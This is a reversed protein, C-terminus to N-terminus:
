NICSLLLLPVFKLMKKGLSIRMQAFSRQIIKKVGDVSIGLMDAVDQNSKQEYFRLYLVRRVREPQRNLVAKLHTIRAEYENWDTETYHELDNLVEEMLPVQRNSQKLQDLCRNRVSTYLYSLVTNQDITERLRWVNVFVESVVDKAIDEDHTIAHAHYYLREYNQKFLNEYEHVTLIGSQNMGVNNYQIKTPVFIFFIRM